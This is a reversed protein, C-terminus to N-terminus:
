TKLYYSLVSHKSGVLRIYLLVDVFGLHPHVEKWLGGKCINTGISVLRDFSSLAVYADLYTQRLEKKSEARPSSSCRHDASTLLLIYYSSIDLSSSCRSRYSLKPLESGIKM